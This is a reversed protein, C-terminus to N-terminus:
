ASRLAPLHTIGAAALLAARDDALADPDAAAGLLEAPAAPILIVVLRAPELVRVAIPRGEVLTVLGPHIVVPAEDDERVELVGDLLQAVASHDRRVHRPIDLGRPLSIDLVAYAGQTRAADVLLQVKPHPLANMGVLKTAAARSRM